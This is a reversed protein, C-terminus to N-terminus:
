CKCMWSNRWFNHDTLIEVFESSNKLYHKWHKFSDVIILWKQDHTEYNRKASIMKKSYFVVSYWRDNAQLQFIIDILVYVVANTKIRIRLQFDFHM